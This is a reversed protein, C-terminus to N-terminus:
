SRPPLVLNRTDLWQLLADPWLAGSRNPMFHFAGHGGTDHRELHVPVQLAELQRRIHLALAVPAGKDDDAHGLFVPPTNKLFTFPSEARGYAWTSLGAIFDPRSSHRAVPDASAPDGDDFSGALRMALNAGASYGVVGLCTIGHEGARSRVLRVARQADALAAEATDQANAKTRYKLAFVAVGRPHFQGTLAIVHNTWDLHSYGGGPFVIIAVGTNPQGPPLPFPVLSPRSVAAIGGKHNITEARPNEKALPMGGEPWLPIQVHLTAATAEPSPTPPVLPPPQASLVAFLLFPLALSWPRM